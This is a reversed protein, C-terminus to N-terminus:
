KTGWLVVYRSVCPIPGKRLDEEIRRIGRDFAEGPILHLCSFARDRYMQIDTTTSVAEVTAEHISSLGASAMIGRLDDIRPYRALDVDITEPFYVSLPERSRIIEESDTATCIRGGPALVRFGERYYSARDSVHHIVDVSFVLDFSEDAFGIQEARGQALWARVGQTGAQALMKESPDIGACECGVVRHLAALYSATGCGVELIRSSEDWRGSDLLAGLVGPHVARHKAYESAVADYDFM